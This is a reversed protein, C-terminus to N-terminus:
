DWDVRCAHSQPISEQVVAEASAVISAYHAAAERLFIALRENRQKEALELGANARDMGQMAHLLITSITPPYETM